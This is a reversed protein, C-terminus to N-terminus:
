PYGIPPQTCSLWSAKTGWLGRLRYGATGNPLRTGMPRLTGNQVATGIPAPTGNQGSREFRYSRVFRTRTSWVESASLSRVRLDVPLSDHSRGSVKLILIACKRRRELGGFQFLTSVLLNRASLAMLVWTRRPFFNWLDPWTSELRSTGLAGSNASWTPEGLFNGLLSRVGELRRPAAARQLGGGDPPSVSHRVIWGLKRSPDVWPSSERAPGHIM